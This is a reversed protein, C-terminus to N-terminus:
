KDGTSAAEVHTAAAEVTTAVAEGFASVGEDATSVARNFTSTEGVATSKAEKSIRNSALIPIKSKVPKKLRADDSYSV